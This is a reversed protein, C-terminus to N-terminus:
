TNGEGQVGNEGQFINWGVLWNVWQYYLNQFVMFMVSCYDIIMCSTGSRSFCWCSKMYMNECVCHNWKWPDLLLYNCDKPWGAYFSHLTMVMVTALMVTILMVTIAMVRVSWWWMVMMLINIFVFNQGLSTYKCSLWWIWITGPQWIHRVPEKIYLWHVCWVFFESGMQFISTIVLCKNIIWVTCERGIESKM